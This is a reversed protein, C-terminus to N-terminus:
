KRFRKRGLGFLGALGTGLLLMTAPEPVPQSGDQITLGSGFLVRATSDPDNQVLLFGTNGSGWVGQEYWLSFTVTALDDNDLVFSWAMAMAVDDPASSPVGNSNDLIGAYVNDPIDGYVYKPEDIEWSQSTEPTGTVAGFENFYTNTGQDIEVDFFSAVYHAGAGSISVEVTGLGTSTDFGSINVNGPIPDGFYSDTIVGDLNFIYSELDSVAWATSITLGFFLLTLFFVKTKKM